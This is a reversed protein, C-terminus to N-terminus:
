SSPTDPTPAPAAICHRLHVDVRGIHKLLWDQINLMLMDADARDFGYDEFRHRYRTLTESFAAHAAKNLGAIQCRHVAMCQEEATFHAHIYLELSRLLLGYTQEGTGVHLASQFDEAMRFITKHQEDIQPVGTSYEDSWKM